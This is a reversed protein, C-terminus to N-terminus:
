LVAEVATFVAFSAVLAAVYVGLVLFSATGWETTHPFLWQGLRIRYGLLLGSYLVLLDPVVLLIPMRGRLWTWVSSRELDAIPSTM